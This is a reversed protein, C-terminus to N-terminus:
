VVINSGLGMKQGLLTLHEVFVKGTPIETAGYIIHKAPQKRQALEQLRGYEVYNGRGIMFIIAEKFPGKLHSGGVGASSKPARPDFVLYSDVQDKNTRATKYYGNM